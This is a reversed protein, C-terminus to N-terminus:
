RNHDKRLLFERSETYLQISMCVPILRKKKFSHFDGVEEEGSSFSISVLSMASWVNQLCNILNQSLSYTRNKEDRIKVM